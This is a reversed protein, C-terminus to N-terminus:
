RPTMKKEPSRVPRPDQPMLSIIRGQHVGAIPRRLWDHVTAVGSAKDQFVPFLGQNFFVLPTYADHHTGLQSKLLLVYKEGVQLLVAKLNVSRRGDMRM